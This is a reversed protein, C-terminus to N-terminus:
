RCFKVPRFFEGDVPIQVHTCHSMYRGGVQYNAINTFHHLSRYSITVMVDDLESLCYHKTLNWDCESVCRSHQQPTAMVGIYLRYSLGGLTRKGGGTEMKYIACSTRRSSRHTCAAGPVSTWGSDRVTWSRTQSDWRGARLHWWVPPIM